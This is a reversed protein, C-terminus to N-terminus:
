DGPKPGACPYKELGDPSRCIMPAVVISGPVVLIPHIPVPTIPELM